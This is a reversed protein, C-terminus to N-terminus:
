IGPDWCAIRLQVPALLGFFSRELLDGRIPLGARSSILSRGESRMVRTQRSRKALPLECFCREFASACRLTRAVATSHGVLLEKLMVTVFDFYQAHLCHYWCLQQFCVAVTIYNKRYSISPSIDHIAYCSFRLPRWILMFVEIKACRPRIKLLFM